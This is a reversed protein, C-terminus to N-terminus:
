LTTPDWVDCMCGGKVRHTHSSGSCRSLISGSEVCLLEAGWLVQRDFGPDEEKTVYLDKWYSIFLSILFLLCWRFGELSLSNM